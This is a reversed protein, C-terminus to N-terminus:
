PTPLHQPITTSIEVSISTGSEAGNPQLRHLYRYDTYIGQHTNVSSTADAQLPNDTTEGTRPPLNGLLQNLIDLKLDHQLRGKQLLIGRNPMSAHNGSGEGWGGSRIETRWCHLSCLHLKRDYRLFPLHLHRYTRKRTDHIKVSPWLRTQSTWQNSINDIQKVSVRVFFIVHSLHWKVSKRQANDDASLM